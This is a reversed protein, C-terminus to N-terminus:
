KEPHEAQALSASRLIVMRTNTNANQNGIASVMKSGAVSFTTVSNDNSIRDIKVHTNQPRSMVESGPRCRNSPWCVPEDLHSVFVPLTNRCLKFNLDELVDGVFILAVTRTPKSEDVTRKDALNPGSM